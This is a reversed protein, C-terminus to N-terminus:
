YRLSLGFISFSRFIFDRELKM